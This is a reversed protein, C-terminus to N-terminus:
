AAKEEDLKGFQKLWDDAIKGQQRIMSPMMVVQKLTRVKEDLRIVAIRKAAVINPDVLRPDALDDMYRARLKISEEQAASLYQLFADWEPTGMMLEAAVAAQRLQVMGDQRQRQSEATWKQALAKFDKREVNM